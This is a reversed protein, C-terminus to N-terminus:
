QAFVEVIGVGTGGGVGSVIATYAGPQLTILIASELASAPALGTAQIAAANTASQWDDNSAIVTSGSYLQLTPNALVGTVGHNVLSPGAARILVTQAGEGQIIFGGIMVKDATLVEGRTSLNVLRAPSASVTVSATVAAGTGAANVGAVSYSTTAAPTVTCSAGTTGACSGGTWVHSTAVPSCSATLTSSGGATISAPSATLTCQPPAPPAAISGTAGAFNTPANLVTNGARDLASVGDSPLASYTMVDVGAFDVSGNSQFLFGDPVVYDPTVLGLNAFSQTGILFKRNLSDGPLDSPLTFSHVSGNQSASVQHGSVFQQGASSTTLAMYQVTGDANSYIEALQWLHFTASATQAFLLAAAL